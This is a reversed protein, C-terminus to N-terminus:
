RRALHPVDSASPASTSSPLSTSSPAAFSATAATPSSAATSATAATSSSATPALGAVPIDVPRLMTSLDDIALSKRLQKFLAKELAQLPVPKTLYTDCGALAGRALDFPSSKSTLLIVPIQRYQKNRKIERTLKYGDMDPMVVDLLILDFYRQALCQLAQAASGVVESALGMRAVATALQLRVTPSDDVVLVRLQAPPPPSLSNSKPFALLNSYASGSSPRPPSTGSREPSRRDAVPVVPDRVPPAASKLSSPVALPARGAFSQAISPTPAAPLALTPTQTGPTAAQTGPTAAQTGPTAAQTALTAAPMAASTSAASTSAASDRLLDLEVVRNLIPLLQLTLRDISIAHRAAGPAGRPVAAIVPIARTGARVASVASVGQPDNTNAILIDISEPDAGQALVFEFRNYQSHKFVIEILRWDRPDLGAAGIRYVPKKTQMTQRRQRARRGIRCGHGRHVWITV